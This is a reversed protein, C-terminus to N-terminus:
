QSLKEKSSKSEDVSPEAYAQMDPGLPVVRSLNITEHSFYYHETIQWLDVTKLIGPYHLLRLTYGFLRHYDRIM